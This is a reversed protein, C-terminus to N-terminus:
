KIEEDIIAPEIYLREHETSYFGDTYSDFYMEGKVVTEFLSGSKELAKITRELKNRALKETSYVGLVSAGDDGDNAWDEVVVYVKM